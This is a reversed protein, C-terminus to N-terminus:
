RIWIGVDGDDTDPVPHSLAASVFGPRRRMRTTEIVAQLIVRLHGPSIYQPHEMSRYEGLLRRALARDGGLTALAALSFSQERASMQFYVARASEVTVLQAILERYSRGPLRLAKEEALSQATSRGNASAPQTTAFM